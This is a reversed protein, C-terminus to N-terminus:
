HSVNIIEGASIDLTGHSINRVPQIANCFVFKLWLKYIYIL